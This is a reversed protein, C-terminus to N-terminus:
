KGLYGLSKPQVQQDSSAEMGEQGEKDREEKELAERDAKEVILQNMYQEPDFDTEIEYLQKTNATLQQLIGMKEKVSVSDDDRQLYDNLKMQIDLLRKSAIVRAAQVRIMWEPDQVLWQTHIFKIDELLTAYSAITKGKSDKMQSMAIAGLGQIMMQEVHVHRRATAVKNNSM